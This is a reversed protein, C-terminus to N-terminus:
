DNQAAVGGCKAVNADAVHLADTVLRHKQINDNAMTAGVLWVSGPAILESMNPKGKM